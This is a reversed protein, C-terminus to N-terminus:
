LERFSRLAIECRDVAAALRPDCLVELERLREVGYASHHDVDAAPHCGLETIGPQLAEITEILAEVSIADPLSNGFGDRGHFGVYDIGPSIGRVPIDLHQAARQIATRVPDQHHVHQHSDFHTPPRGMLAEFRELQRGLEEVVADQSFEDLVEYVTHWEGDRQEWEGVDFHLGVGLSSGRAYGAAEEADPWRVMLTASTVIGDEHARIVGENVGPSRGFDDANVILVREEM